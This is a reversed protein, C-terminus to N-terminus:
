APEIQSMTVEASYRCDPGSHVAILRDDDTVIIMVETGAEVVVCSLFPQSHDYDRALEIDELAIATLIEM